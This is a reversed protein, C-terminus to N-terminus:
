GTERRASVLISEVRERLGQDAGPQELVRLARRAHTAAEAFHQLELNARALGVLVDARLPHAPHEREFADLLREHSVLGDAFHGDDLEMRALVIRVRLVDLRDPGLLRERIEAAKELMDRGREVDRGPHRDVLVQGLDFLALAIALENGHGSEYQRLAERLHTQAEDWRRLKEYAVGVNLHALAVNPHEPGVRARHGELIRLARALVAEYHGLQSEVDSLGVLVKLTIAHEPGFLTEAIELAQLEDALASELRGQEAKAWGRLELLVMHEFSTAGVDALALEIAEAIRREADDPHGARIEIQALHALLKARGDREDSDQEAEALVGEVLERARAYDGEASAIIARAVSVDRTTWPDSCLPLVAEAHGIWAAASDADKATAIVLDLAITVAM